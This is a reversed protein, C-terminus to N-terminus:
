EPHIPRETKRPTKVRTAMKRSRRNQYVRIVPVSVFYAIVSAVAGPILGGVLYTLFVGKFFLDLRDWHAVKDTFLSIINSWIESFAQSFTSFVLHLPIPSDYHLLWEGFKLSAAAIFPFTLPNGVFTSLLAALVNGRIALAIAAAIIFHFGFFPTFSSMIGAAIGRAIREPPDPLRRLRHSIYSAARGWGGRPYVTHQAIQLYTRKDRRKFIM